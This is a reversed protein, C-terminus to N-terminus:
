NQNRASTPFLVCTLFNLYLEWYSCHSVFTTQKSNCQIPFLLLLKTTWKTHHTMKMELLVSPWLFWKSSLIQNRERIYIPFKIINPMKSSLKENKANILVSLHQSCKFKKEVQVKNFISGAHKTLFFFFFISM